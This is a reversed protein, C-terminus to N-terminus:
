TAGGSRNGLEILLHVAESLYENFMRSPGQGFVAIRKVAKTRMEPQRLLMWLAWAASPAGLLTKGEQSDIDVEIRDAFSREPIPEPAYVTPLVAETEDDWISSVIIFKLGSVSCGKRECERKYALLAVDVWHRLVSRAQVDGDVEQAGTMPIGKSLASLAILFGDLPVCLFTYHHWPSTFDRPPRGFYPNGSRAEVHGTIKNREPLGLERFLDGVEVGYDCWKRTPEVDEWGEEDLQEPTHATWARMQSCGTM